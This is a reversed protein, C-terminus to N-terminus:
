KQQVIRLTAKVLLQSAGQEKFSPSEEDITMVVMFAVM